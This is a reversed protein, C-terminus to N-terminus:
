STDAGVSALTLVVSVPDAPDEDSSILALKLVRGGSALAVSRLTAIGHIRSRGGIRPPSNLKTRESRRALRLRPAEKWGSLLVRPRAAALGRDQCNAQPVRAGDNDPTVRLFRHGLSPERDSGVPRRLDSKSHPGLLEM